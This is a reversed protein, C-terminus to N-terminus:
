LQPSIVQKLGHNKERISIYFIRQIPWETLLSNDLDELISPRFVVVISLRNVFPFIVLFHFEKPMKCLKLFHMYDILAPESASSKM